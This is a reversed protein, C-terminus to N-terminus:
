ERGSQSRVVHIRIQRSTEPNGTLRSRAEVTLVYPGPELGTLPIRATYGYGGRRGQLEKSDREEENKYYITGEDSRITTVIDVKHSPATGDDYIETFLAIEDGEPFHRQAIPPAPLISRTQDDPKVTVMSASSLSTLIVGSMGFPLKHYDPV